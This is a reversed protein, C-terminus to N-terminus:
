RRARQNIESNRSSDTGQAPDRMGTTHCWGERHGRNTAGPLQGRDREIVGDDPDSLLLDSVINCFDFQFPRDEFSTTWYWVNSRSASPITSLWQVAGSTSLDGNSGCGAGFLDGLVAANGALPTGQYPTGVTQILRDGKAWDMGSWYFTSLHLAAMGGQSHGAVGFSKMPSSQSLIELAFADHSRNRNVDSFVAIDGSFHSTTFPNGSSCYGHILMLRHGPQVARSSATSMPARVSTRGPAGRLMDDTIREPAEPVALGALTGELALAPEFAVLTMSDVDHARVNRLELSGPDVGALAIWRADLTLSRESDCVRALWCVPTMVGGRAGWVEAGVISRRGPHGAQMSLEILTGAIRARAAGFGPAAEEAHVVHQTTLEIREGAADRGVVHVRVAHPGPEDPVFSVAANGPGSEVRRTVGSPSRVDGWARVVQANNSLESRLVVPSGVIAALDQTYTYLETAGGPEILVFGPADRDSAIRLTWSETAVPQRDHRHMPLTIGELTRGPAIWGGTGAGVTVGPIEDCQALPREIGDPSLLSVSWADPDGPFLVARAGNALSRTWVGGGPPLEVPILASRSVVGLDEPEPLRVVGSLIDGPPAAVQKTAVDHLLPEASLTPSALGLLLGCLPALVRGLMPGILAQTRTLKQM